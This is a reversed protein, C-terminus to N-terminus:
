QMLYLWFMIRYFCVDDVNSKVVFHQINAHWSPPEVSYMHNNQPTRPKFLNLVVANTSVDEMVPPSQSWSVVETSTETHEAAVHEQLSIETYGMRGCYPCTFAQPQEVSFAEGGYYLDPSFCLVCQVTLNNSKDWPPCNMKLGVWIVCMVCFIWLCPLWMDSAVSWFLLLIYVTCIDNVTHENTWLFLCLKNYANTLRVTSPIFSKTYRNTRCYVSLANWNVPCFM